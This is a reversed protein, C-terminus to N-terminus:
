PYTQYDRTPLATWVLRAFLPVGVHSWESSTYSNKKKETEIWGQQWAM